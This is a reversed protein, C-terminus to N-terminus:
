AKNQEAQWAKMTRLMKVRPGKLMGLESLDEEQLMCLTELNRVENDALVSEFKELGQSALFARLVGADLAATLTDMLATWMRVALAQGSSVRAKLVTTLLDLMSAYATTGYRAAGNLDGLENGPSSPNAYSVTAANSDLLVLERGGWDQSILNEAYSVIAAVQAVCVCVSFAGLASDSCTIFARM